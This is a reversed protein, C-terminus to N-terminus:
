LRENTCTNVIARARSFVLRRRIKKAFQAFHRSHPSLPKPFRAVLKRAGRSERSAFPRRCEAPLNVRPNTIRSSERSRAAASAYSNALKESVRMRTEFLRPSSQRISAAEPLRRNIAYRESPRRIPQRASGPYAARAALGPIFSAVGKANAIELSANAVRLFPSPSVM